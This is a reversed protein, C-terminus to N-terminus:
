NVTEGRVKEAMKEVSVRAQESPTKTYRETMRQSKHGMLAQREGTSMGVEDALTAFSRRNGKRGEPGNAVELVALEALM